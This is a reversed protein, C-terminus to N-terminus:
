PLAAMRPVKVGLYRKLTKDIWGRPRQASAVTRALLLELSRDIGLDAAFSAARASIEDLRDAAVLVAQAVSESAFADIGVARGQEIAARSFDCGRTAVVPIGLKVAEAFVGSGRARYVLPDYPQLLLDAQSLWALYDETSMVDTRVTVNPALQALRGFEQRGEPYDTQEVTGHILFALDSRERNVREIADALLSYGKAANANGTCVIRIAEDPRRVRRDRPQEILKHVIVTEIELGVRSRYTATMAETECCVHICSDDGVVRRLAAFAEEYEDLLPAASPDDVSKRYHPAVMLWLLIQPPERLRYSELCRALGLVTSQDAAPFIMIGPRLRLERMRAKLETCFKMAGDYFEARTWETRYYISKEFTPILNAGRCFEDSAHLSALTVSGLWLKGLETRFRQLVGLHHGDASRLSPDIILVKEM